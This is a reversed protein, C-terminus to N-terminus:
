FTLTQSTLPTDVFCSRIETERNESLNIKFVWDISKLKGFM